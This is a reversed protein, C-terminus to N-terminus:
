GGNEILPLVVTSLSVLCMISLSGTTQMFSTIANEKYRASFPFASLDSVLFLDCLLVLLVSVAFLSVRYFYTARM